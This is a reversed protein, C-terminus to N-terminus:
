FESEGGIAFAMKTRGYAKLEWGRFLPFKSIKLQSESGTKPNRPILNEIMMPRLPYGDELLKKLIELNL